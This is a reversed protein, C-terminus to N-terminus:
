DRYQGGDNEKDIDDYSIMDDNEDEEENTDGDDIESKIKTISSIFDKQSFVKWNFVSGGIDVDWSWM